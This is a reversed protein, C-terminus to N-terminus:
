RNQDIYKDNWIVATKLPAGKSYIKNKYAKMPDSIFEDKDILEVIQDYRSKELIKIAEEMHDQRFNISGFILNNKFGFPMTDFSVVPGLSFSNYLGNCGLVGYKLAIEHEINTGSVGIFTTATGGLKEIIAKALEENSAFNSQIYEARAQEKAFKVKTSNEDSRGVFVIKTEPYSQRILDGVFMGTTGLGFICVRKFTNKKALTRAETENCKHQAMEVRFNQAEGLDEMREKQFIMCGYPDPFVLKKALSLALKGDKVYGEPIELLMDPNYYNMDSFLGDARDCGYEFYSEEETYRTPDYSNGGRILVIAFRNQSPVWVIGEHGNILRKQGEPFKSTLKGEMGMHMLENDTGCFGLIVSEALIGEKEEEGRLRRRKPNIIEVDGYVLPKEKDNQFYTGKVKM